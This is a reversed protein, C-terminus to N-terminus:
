KRWERELEEIRKGTLLRQSSKAEQILAPNESMFEEVSRIYPHVTMGSVTLIHDSLDELKESIKKKIDPVDTLLLLDIDSGVNEEHRAVSGYTSGHVIHKRLYRNGRLARRISEEIQPLVGEEAKFLEKLSEYLIFETNLSFVKSNGVYKYVLVHNDALVQLQKHVNAQPLRSLRAIHRGAFEGPYKFLTRLTAVRTRNGLIEDLSKTLKM